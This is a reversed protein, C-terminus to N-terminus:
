RDIGLVNVYYICVCMLLYTQILFKRTVSNLFAFRLAGAGGGGCGFLVLWGHRKERADSKTAAAVNPSLRPAFHQMKGYLARRRSLVLFSRSRAPARSSSNM